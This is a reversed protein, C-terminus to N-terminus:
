TRVIGGSWISSSRRWSAPRRGATTRSLAARRGRDQAAAPDGAPEGGVVSRGPAEAPRARGRRGGVVPPADIEPGIRAGLSKIEAVESLLSDLKGSQPGNGIDELKLEIRSLRDEIGARMEASEALAAQVGREIAAMREHQAAFFDALGFTLLSRLRAPMQGLLTGGSAADPEAPAPHRSWRTGRILSARRGAHGGGQGHGAKAPCPPGTWEGGM